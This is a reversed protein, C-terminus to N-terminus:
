AWGVRAVGGAKFESAAHCALARSWFVDAHHRRMSTGERRVDTLLVVNGQQTINRKISHMQYNKNRDAQFFAKEQIMLMKMNNAITSKNQVTFHIPAVRPGWWRELREALVEGMGTRDISLRMLNPLNLLARLAEEQEDFPTNAFTEAYLEYLKGDGRDALVSLEAADKHRGVDYGAFLQCDRTAEYLAALSDIPVIAEEGTPTSAIILSWPLFSAADDGEKLEFEQQFDDIPFISFIQKLSETGFREVRAATDMKPAERRALAVDSCHMPCDWWWVRRREFGPYQGEKNEFIENFMTGSHLETSAVTFQGGLLLIPVAAQYIRRPDRMHAWEDGDIDARAKGRPTFMCMLRSSNSFRLEIRNMVTREPLGRIAPRIASYLENAYEIKEKADELNMSIFIRRYNPITLAFVLGKHACCSQSWGIQRAKKVALFRTTYDDQIARQFDFPSFQPAYHDILTSVKGMERAIVKAESRSVQGKAQISRLLRDSNSARATARRPM